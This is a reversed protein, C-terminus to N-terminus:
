GDMDEVLDIADMYLIAEITVEITAAVDRREHFHLSYYSYLTETDLESFYDVLRSWASTRHDDSITSGYDDPCLRLMDEETMHTVLMDSLDLVMRQETESLALFPDELLEKIRM